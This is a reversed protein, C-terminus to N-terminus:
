FRGLLRKSKIVVWGRIDNENLLDLCRRMDEIKENDFERVGNNDYMECYNVLRRIEDDVPTQNVIYVYCKDKVVYHSFEAKRYIPRLKGFLHLPLQSLNIKFFSENTKVRTIEGEDKNVKVKITRKKPLVQRWGNSLELQSLPSVTQKKTKKVGDDFYDVSVDFSGYKRSM